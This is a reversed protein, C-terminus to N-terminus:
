TIYFALSSWWFPLGTVLSTALIGRWWGYVALLLPPTKVWLMQRGPQSRVDETFFRSGPVLFPWLLWLSWDMRRRATSRHHPAWCSPFFRLVLLSVPAGALHLSWCM